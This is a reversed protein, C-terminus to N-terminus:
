LNLKKLLHSWLFRPIELFELQCKKPTTKQYENNADGKTIRGIFGMDNIIKVLKYRKEVDAVKIVWFGSNRFYSSLISDM